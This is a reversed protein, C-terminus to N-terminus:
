NFDTMPHPRRGLIMSNNHRVLEAPTQRGLFLLPSASLGYSGSKLVGILDGHGPRPLEVEIGLLDTPNCSPGAVQCRVTEAGPRTLNRLIFNSRLATGFTGAAALHHHLGGDVVFFEKGRSSKSSIVRSVYIGANATLYRGLEFVIKRQVPSSETFAHLVPRLESALAALDLERHSDVHSVGFGGGLNIARCVLPTSSEIERAIRFTDKVGEVVGAVDFCQSGAYIHIGQFALEGPHAVIAQVAESLEEEDIGFQGAKGGMKIGFARNLLVPNVRIAVNARTGLQRAIRVCELLERMSEISIYGVSQRISETLEATTKAPGAFSLRASDFGALCAQEMEGGSSIDLGDAVDSVARLLALNPNAKVAYFVKVTGLFAQRIARIRANIEDADYLFFPTGHAQALEEFAAADMAEWPDQNPPSM